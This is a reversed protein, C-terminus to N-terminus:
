VLAQDYAQTEDQIVGENGSVWHHMGLDVYRISRNDTEAPTTVTAAVSGDQFWSAVWPKDLPFLQAQAQLTDIQQGQGDRVQTGTPTYLWIGYEDQGLLYADWTQCGDALVDKIVKWIEAM